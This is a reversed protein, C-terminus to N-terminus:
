SMWVQAESIMLWLPSVNWQMRPEGRGSGWRGTWAEVSAARRRAALGALSLFTGSLKRSGLPGSSRRAGRLNSSRALRTADVLAGRLSRLLQGHALILAQRQTHGNALNAPAYVAQIAVDADRSELASAIADLLRATGLAEPM